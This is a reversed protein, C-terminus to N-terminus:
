DGAPSQPEIRLLRRELQPQAEVAGSRLTAQVELVNRQPPGAPPGGQPGGGSQRQGGRNSALNRTNTAETTVYNQHATRMRGIAEDLVSMLNDTVSNFNTTLGVFSTGAPSKWHDEVNSFTTRLSQIGGHMNEREASVQGIADNLAALDVDFGGASPEPM